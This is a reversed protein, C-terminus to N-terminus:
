PELGAAVNGVRRMAVAAVEALEQPHEAAAEFAYTVLADAALLDLARERGAEPDDRLSVLLTDVADLCAGLTEESPRRLSPGLVERVRAALLEPPVPTRADLWGGITV